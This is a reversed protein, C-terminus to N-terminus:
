GRRGMVGCDRLGMAESLRKPRTDKQAAELLEQVRQADESAGAEQLEDLLDLLDEGAEIWANWEDELDEPPAMAKRERLNTQVLPKIQEVWEDFEGASQPV